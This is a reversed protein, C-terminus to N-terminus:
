QIIAGPSPPGCSGRTQLWVTLTCHSLTGLVHRLHPCHRHPGHGKVLLTLVSSLETGWAPYSLVCSSRHRGTSVASGMRPWPCCRPSPWNVQVCLGVREGHGPCGPGHALLVGFPWKLFFHTRIGGGSTSQFLSSLALMWSWVPTLLQSPFGSGRQWTELACEGREQHCLSCTQASFLSLSSDRGPIICPLGEQCHPCKPVAQSM